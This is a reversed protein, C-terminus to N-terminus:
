ETTTGITNYDIELSDCLQKLEEDVSSTSDIVQNSPINSPKPKYFSKTIIVILYVEVIIMILVGFCGINKIKM